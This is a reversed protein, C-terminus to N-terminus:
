QPNDCTLVFYERGDSQCGNHYTTNTAQNGYKCEKDNTDYKVITENGYWRPSKTCIVQWSGPNKNDNKENTENSNNDDDTVNIDHGILEQNLTMTSTANGPLCTGCIFTTMNYDGEGGCALYSVFISSCNQRDNSCNFDFGDKRYYIKNGVYGECTTVDGSGSYIKKIFFDSNSANCEYIYNYYHSTKSSYSSICTNPAVLKNNEVYAYNCGSIYDFGDIVHLFDLMVVCLISCAVMGVDHGSSLSFMTSLKLNLNLNNFVSISVSFNVGYVM